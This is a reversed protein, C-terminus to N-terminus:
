DNNGEQQELWYDIRTEIRGLDSNVSGINDIVGELITNFKDVVYAWPILSVSDNDPLDFLLPQKPDRAM